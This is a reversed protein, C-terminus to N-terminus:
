NGQVPEAPRTGDKDEPKTVTQYYVVVQQVERIYRKLEQMNYSMLEYDGVSMAFFVLDGGHVKKIDEVFKDFYSYGEPWDNEKGLDCNRKETEPDRKCPNPIVRDSVVYWKPEKLDLGRPLTPQAINIEVPVTRIEVDTTRKGLISCGSITITTAILIPLIKWNM